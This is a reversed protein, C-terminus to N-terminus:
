YSSKSSALTSCGSKEKRSGFWGFETFTKARKDLVVKLVISIKLSSLYSITLQIIV